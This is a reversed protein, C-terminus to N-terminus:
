PRVQEGEGTDPLDGAKITLTWGRQWEDWKGLALLRRRREDTVRIALDHDRTTVPSVLVGRGDIRVGGATRGFAAQAEVVEGGKTMKVQVMFYRELSTEVDYSAVELADAGGYHAVYEQALVDSAFMGMVCSDEDSRWTVVHVRFSLM